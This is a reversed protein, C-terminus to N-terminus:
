LIKELEEYLPNDEEYLRDRAYIIVKKNFDSLSNNILLVGGIGILFGIILGM